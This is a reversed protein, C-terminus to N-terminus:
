AGRFITEEREFWKVAGYLSLGALVFLSFYVELLIGATITGAIIEKTALSVNLVPILATASDLKIGPIIGIAVPLIVVIALPSTISQAEKFSKAFISLSLLFASFFIALPLLLSLVLAISRIDLIGMVAQLMEPPM